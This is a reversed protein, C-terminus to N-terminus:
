KNLYIEGLKPLCDLIQRIQGRSIKTYDHLLLIITDKKLGGKLMMESAEAIKKINKQMIEIADPKEGDEVCVKVKMEKKMYGEKDYDIKCNIFNLKKLSIKIYSM